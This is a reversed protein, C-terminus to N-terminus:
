LIKVASAVPVYGQQSRDLSIKLASMINAEFKKLSSNYIDSLKKQLQFGFLILISLADSFARGSKGDPFRAYFCSLISDPADTKPLRIRM